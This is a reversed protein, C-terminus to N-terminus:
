MSNQWQMTRFLLNEFLKPRVNYTQRANIPIYSTHLMTAMLALFLCWKSGSHLFIFAIFFAFFDFEACLIVNNADRKYVSEIKWKAVFARHLHSNEEGKRETCM